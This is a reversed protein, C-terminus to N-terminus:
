SGAMKINCAPLKLLAPNVPPVQGAAQGKSVKMLANHMESSTNYAPLKLTPTAAGFVVEPYSGATPELVLGDVHGEVNSGSISDLLGHQQESSMAEVASWFMDQVESSLSPASQSNDKWQKMDITSEGCLCLGLETSTLIRQLQAPVDSPMLAMLGSRLADVQDRVSDILRHHCLLDVYQLKNEETVLREAGGLCLEVNGEATEDVFTLNLAALEKSGEEGEEKYRGELIYAVKSKYFEPDVAAMDELPRLPAGLLLRRLPKSLKMAPVSEGHLLALGILKGCLQLHDLQDGERDSEDSSSGPSVHFSRGGDKSVFLDLEPSMFEQAALRFFEQRNEATHDKAGDHDEMEEDEGETFSVDIGWRLQDTCQALGSCLSDLLHERQVELQVPTPQQNGGHLQDAMWRRKFHLPVLQIYQPWWQLLSLLRRMLGTAQDLGCLRPLLRTMTEGAGMLVGPDICQLTQTLLELSKDQVHKSDSDLLHSISDIMQMVHSGSLVAKQTLNNQLFLSLVQLLDDDEETVMQLNSIALSVLPEFRPHHALRKMADTRQMLQRTTFMAACIREKGQKNSGVVLNTILHDFLPMKGKLLAQFFMGDKIQLTNGLARACLAGDPQLLEMTLLKLWEQAFHQRSDDQAKWMIDDVPSSLFRDLTRILDSNGFSDPWSDFVHLLFSAGEAEIIANCFDVRDQENEMSAATFSCAQIVDREQVNGTKSVAKVLHHAVSPMDVHSLLTRCSEERQVLEVFGQLIKSRTEQPCLLNVLISIAEDHATLMEKGLTKWCLDTMHKCKPHMALTEAHLPDDTILALHSLRLANDKEAIEEEHEALLRDLLPDILDCNRQRKKNPMMAM